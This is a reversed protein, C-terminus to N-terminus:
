DESNIYNYVRLKTDIEEIRKAYRRIDTYIRNNDELEFITRADANMIIEALVKKCEEFQELTNKREYKLTKVEDNIKEQM